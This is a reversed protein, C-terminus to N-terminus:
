PLLKEVITKVTAGDARPGLEKMLAGILKGVDQKTKAGLALIKEKALSEIENESMAAPLYNKLIELEATEQDVLDQRGGAAFQAISDQRQKVARRIVALAEDDTLIQNPKRRKAVLENTFAAALGRVVALKLADKALMAQKIEKKIQEHLM